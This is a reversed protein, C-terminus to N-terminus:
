RPSFMWFPHRGDRQLALLHGIQQMDLLGLEVAVEGFRVSSGASVRLIEQVQRMSLMGSRLAIKGIPVQGKIQEVIAEMWEVNGLLREEVLFAGLGLRKNM